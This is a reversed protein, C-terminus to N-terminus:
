SARAKGRSRVRGTRGKLVAAAAVGAAATATGLSAVKKIEEEKGKGGPFRMWALSCAFAVVFYMKLRVEVGDWSQRWGYFAISMLGITGTPSPALVAMIAGAVVLFSGGILDVDQAKFDDWTSPISSVWPEKPTVDSLPDLLKSWDPLAFPKGRIKEQVNQMLAGPYTLTRLLSPPAQGYSHLETIVIDLPSTCTIGSCPLDFFPMRLLVIMFFFHSLRSRLPFFEAMPDAMKTSVPLKSPAVASLTVM